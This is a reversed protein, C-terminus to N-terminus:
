RVCRLLVLSIEELVTLNKNIMSEVRPYVDELNIQSLLHVFTGARETFIAISAGPDSGLVVSLPHDISTITEDLRLRLQNLRHSELLIQNAMLLEHNVYDFAHETFGVRAIMIERRDLRYESSQLVKLYAALRELVPEDQHTHILQKVLEEHTPPSPHFLSKLWTLM